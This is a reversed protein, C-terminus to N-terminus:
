ADMDDFMSRMGGETPAVQSSPARRVVSSEEPEEWDWAKSREREKRQEELERVADSIAERGETIADLAELDGEFISSELNDLAQELDQFHTEPDTEVEAQRVYDEVREPFSPLLERRLRDKLNFLPSPRILGLVDEDDVFSFDLDLICRVLEDSIDSRDEESLAGLNKLRRAIKIRSMHLAGSRYWWHQQRKLLSKDFSVYQLLVSNSARAAMFGLLLTNSQPDDEINALRRLLAPEEAKSIVITDPVIKPAEECCVQQLVTMVKAGMIFYLGMGKTTSLIESIADAITPHHYTIIRGAETEEERLFSGKMNDLAIAVDYPNVGFIHQLQSMLEKDPSQAKMAGQHLFVLVLAAWEAKGLCSITEVLYQKPERVFRIISNLDPYM